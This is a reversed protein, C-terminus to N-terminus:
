AGWVLFGIASVGALSRRLVEQLHLPLLLQLLLLLEAGVTLLVLVVADSSEVLLDIAVLGSGEVAPEAAYVVPSVLISGM